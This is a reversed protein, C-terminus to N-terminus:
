AAEAALAQRLKDLGLRLRGKVTGVPLDLLGAIERHTRGDFYALEV